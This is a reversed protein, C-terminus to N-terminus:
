GLLLYSLLCGVVSGGLGAVLLVWAPVVRLWAGVPVRKPVPVAPKGSVPDSVVPAPAIRTPPLLVVKPPASQIEEPGAVITDENEDDAGDYISPILQTSAAVVMPPPIESAPRFTQPQASADSYRALIEYAETLDEPRDSRSAEMMRRVLAALDAPVSPCLQELPPFSKEALERFVQGVTFGEFPCRGALCEYLTVGISYIDVHHDVDADGFMQEPAIYRPSGLPVGIRTLVRDTVPDHTLGVLKGLGFDLVQVQEGDPSQHLFINGPRLDRHVVGVAHAAGIASVVHVMIFAAEHLPLPGQRELRAQLTEGQLLDLLLAPANNPGALVEHVRLVNPHQISAVLRAERVFRRISETHEAFEARLVKVACSRSTEMDTAAWVVGVSGRGIVTDLRYREGVIDHTAFSM